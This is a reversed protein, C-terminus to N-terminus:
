VGDVSVTEYCYEEEDDDLAAAVPVITRVGDTRVVAATNEELAPKNNKQTKKARRAFYRVLCTNAYSVFEEAPLDGALFRQVRVNEVNDFTEIDVRHTEIFALTSRKLDPLVDEMAVGIKPLVTKLVLYPVKQDDLNHLTTNNM